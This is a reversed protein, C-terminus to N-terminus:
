CLADLLEKVSPFIYDPQREAKEAMEPSTEGSLVLVSVADANQAVAIDTYLRDGVACILQNPISEQASIVDIMNRNPKGIYTPKVGSSATLLACISGCDPLVEDEPMPCVWDPNAAIFAAGRRLFHCAHNLKQYVLETDFGQVVVDAYEADTEGNEDNILHVGYSLLERYFAKTGALYVSAGPYKQNLYLGTAMGSTFVNERECPFGLNRLRTIYDTGARSSNNTLYIYRKGLRPLAQILEIAGPYVNDGLYLTGDMDFLFLECKKLKDLNM